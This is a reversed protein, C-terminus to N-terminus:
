ERTFEVKDYALKKIKYEKLNRIAEVSITVVATIIALIVGESLAMAGATLGLGLLSGGCTFPAAALLAITAFIGVNRTTRKKADAEELKALIGMAKAGELVIRRDKRELARELEKESYVLTANTTNMTNPNHTNRTTM